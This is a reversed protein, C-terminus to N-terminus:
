KTLGLRAKATAHVIMTAGGGAILILLGSVAQLVTQVGTALSSGILPTLVTGTVGAIASVVAIITPWNTIKM